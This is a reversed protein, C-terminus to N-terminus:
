KMCNLYLGSRFRDLFRLFFFCVALFILFHDNKVLTLVGGERGRDFFLIIFIPCLWM